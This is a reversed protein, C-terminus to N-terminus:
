VYKYEDNEETVETYNKKEEPKIFVNSAGEVKRREMEEM